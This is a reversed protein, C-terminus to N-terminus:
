AAAKDLLGGAIREFEIRNDTFPITQAVRTIGQAADWVTRMQRGEHQEVSEYVELARKRSLGRGALFALAEDKESAVKAAKAKEVGELLRTTSGDAFSQLAPRAEEVFRAPAYKSHRMCVEQFGEVGWLMRNGCVARLYFAAIKLSGTGVESNTVYFGRFVLDDEGSPLKGISIPNRDDVLFIFVDRDSAYLTTTDLSIPHEPDYVMTRWDLVGPVKWRADGTGNGAIQQVAQVVEHDFIRGYDPGTAARLDLGARGYLKIAESERNYRMGYALADAVIQSPLKRLYGAPADALGALQGFSWHTPAVERGDPLGITLRHTDEVSKAEPAIFEVRKTEVREEFTADSRAKVSAFLENLSLFREDRPRSIWQSSLDSRSNGAALNGVKFATATPPTIANM